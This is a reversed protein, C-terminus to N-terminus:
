KAVACSRCSFLDPDNPRNPALVWAVFLSEFVAECCAAAEKVGERRKKSGYMDGNAWALGVELAFRTPSVIESSLEATITSLDKPCSGLAPSHPPSM